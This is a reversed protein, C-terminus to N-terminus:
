GPVAAVLLSGLPSVSKVVFFAFLVFSLIFRAAFVRDQALGFSRLPRFYKKTVKTRKTTLFHKTPGRLSASRM